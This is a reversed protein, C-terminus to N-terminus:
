VYSGLVDLPHKKKADTRWWFKCMTKEMDRCMELLLLFVSMAYNPITQAVNKLLIEKGCKTFLKGDWAQVRDRM